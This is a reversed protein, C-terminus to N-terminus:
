GTLKRYASVLWLKIESVRQRFTLRSNQKSYQITSEVMDKPILEMEALEVVWQDASQQSGVIRLKTSLGIFLNKMNERVAGDLKNNKCVARHTDRFLQKRNELKEVDREAFASIRDHLSRRIFNDARTDHIMYKLDNVIARVFLDWDQWALLDERFGGLNRISDIKWIAATTQWLPKELFGALDDEAVRFWRVGLDGPENRFQESPFLHFDNEVAEGFLRVRNQLCETGLLDDSDLFVIWNGSAANMGENRCAPAGKQTSRRKWVRIREDGDACEVAASLSNDTSHDDVVLLEFNEWTQNRVSDMTEVILKERNFLPVVVSVTKNTEAM